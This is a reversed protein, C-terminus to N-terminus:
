GEFAKKILDPKKEFVALIEADLRFSESAFGSVNVIRAPQVDYGSRFAKLLLMAQDMSSRATRYYIFRDIIQQFDHPTFGIKGLEEALIKQDGSKRYDLYLNLCKEMRDTEVKRGAPSSFKKGLWFGALSMLLVIVVFIVKRFAKMILSIVNQKIFTLGSGPKLTM